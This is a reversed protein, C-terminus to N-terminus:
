LGCLVPNLYIRTGALGMKRDTVLSCVGYALGNSRSLSNPAFPTLSYNCKFLAGLGVAPLVHVEWM